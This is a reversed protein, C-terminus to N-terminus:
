IFQLRMQNTQLPPPANPKNLANIPKRHMLNIRVLRMFAVPKAIQKQANHALRILVYAILAVYIQISVANKSTGLFRKIKLNQKIWKFFLEVQWRLKYLDAIECASADLDNSVIRITRGTDLRVTIERVPKAFPNSRSGSLRKPLYGIRDALINGDDPVDHEHVDRLKTHTKLRTVFRCGQADLDAWWQFSYYGLDFVYTAGAECDFGRAPTIDNVNASTIEAKLPLGTDPDHILHLKAACTQESFQAWHASTTSLSINTADLLRIVDSMKRRVARNAQAILSTFLEEFVAAPRKANADALTSRAVQTAGCHYLLNGHSKLGADIERLSVSGSLQAFLLALFQDKTTLRRVRFDAKHKDVLGDFTQWDIFKTIQHFVSNQHRM